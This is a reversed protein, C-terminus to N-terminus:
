KWMAHPSVDFIKAPTPNMGRNRHNGRVLFKVGASASSVLMGQKVKGLVGLCDKVKERFLDFDTDNPVHMSIVSVVTDDQIAAWYKGLEQADLLGSDEILQEM